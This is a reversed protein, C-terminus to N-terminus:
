QVSRKIRGAINMARLRRVAAEKLRQEVQPTIGAFQRRPIVIAQKKSLALALWFSAEAAEGDRKASIHRAFFYRRMRPTVTITGGENHIRAYPVPSVVSVRNGRVPFSLSNRLIATDVLLSGRRKPSSGAQWPTGNWAKASFAELTERRLAIALDRALGEELATKDIIM